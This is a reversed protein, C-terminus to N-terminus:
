GGIVLVLLVVILGAVIGAVNWNLQGNQTARFAATSWETLRTLQQELWVFIAEDAAALLTSFLCYPRVFLRQYGADLWWQNQFATFLPGLRRALPDEGGPPIPHRAYIRYALGLAALALLTSSLAVLPNFAATEGQGLTHELWHGLSHVGPLNLGGGIVALIALGILPITMVPRNESARASEDSRPEGGFVLWLQRGMYFATCFAALILMGAVAPNHDVAAALIVDKSFFGALPPIGALAMAGVLYVIFTVPM